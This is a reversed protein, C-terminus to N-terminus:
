SGDTKTIRKREKGNKRFAGQAAKFKYDETFQLGLKYNTLRVNATKPLHSEFKVLLERM